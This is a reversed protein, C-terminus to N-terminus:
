PANKSPNWTTEAYHNTEHEKKVAMVPAVPIVMIARPPNSNGAKIDSFYLSLKERPNIVVEPLRPSWKGGLRGMM